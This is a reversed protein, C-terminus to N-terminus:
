LKIQKILTDMACAYSAIAKRQHDMKSYARKHDKSDKKAKRLIRSQKGNM